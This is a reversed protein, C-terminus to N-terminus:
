AHNMERMQLLWSQAYHGGAAVLQNHTGFETIRGNEMVHIMDAHMATTFRHTIMLATHGATLERIVESEDVPVSVFIWAGKGEYEWLPATFTFRPGTPGPSLTAM